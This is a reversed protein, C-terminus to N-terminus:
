TATKERILVSSMGRSIERTEGSCLETVIASPSAQSFARPQFLCLRKFCFLSLLGRPSEAMVASPVSHAAPTCLPSGPRGQTRWALLTGQHPGAVGFLLCDPHPLPKEKFVLTVVFLCFGVRGRLVAHAASGAEEPGGPFRPVGPLAVPSM